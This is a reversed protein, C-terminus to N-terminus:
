NRRNKSNLIEKYVTEKLSKVVKSESVMRLVGSKVIKKALDIPLKGNSAEMIASSYTKLDIEQEKNNDDNEFSMFDLKAKTIGRDNIIGGHRAEILDDISIDNTEDQRFAVLEDKLKQLKDKTETKINDVM